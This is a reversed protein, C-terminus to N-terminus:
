EAQLVEFQETRSISLVLGDVSVFRGVIRVKKGINDEVEPGREFVDAGVYIRIRAEPDVGSASLYYLGLDDNIYGVAECRGAKPVDPTQEALVFCNPVQVQDPGCSALALLLVHLLKIRNKM